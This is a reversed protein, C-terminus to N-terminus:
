WASFNMSRLVNPYINLVSIDRLSQKDKKTAGESRILHLNM